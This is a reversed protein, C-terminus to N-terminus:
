YISVGYPGGDFAERPEHELLQARDKALRGTSIYPPNCVVLDMTSELERCALQAFLDGQMVMVRETLKLREVNRRTLSVCADTLDCAWFVVSPVASAIGCALNGSGCCMDIARLKDGVLPSQQELWRAATRGLLQTEERPALAGAAAIIEIGM